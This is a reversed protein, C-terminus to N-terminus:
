VLGVKKELWEKLKKKGNTTLHYFVNGKTIKKIMRTKILKDTQQELTTNNSKLKSILEQNSIIPYENFMIEKMVRLQYDNVEYTVGWYTKVTRM